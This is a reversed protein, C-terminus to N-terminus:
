HAHSSIQFSDSKAKREEHLKAMKRGWGCVNFKMGIRTQKPAAVRDGMCTKLM